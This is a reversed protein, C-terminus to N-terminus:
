TAPLEPTQGAEEPADMSLRLQREADVLDRKLAFMAARIKEELDPEGELSRLLQRNIQVVQRLARVIDGDSADTLEKLQQYDCGRSWANVVASLAFDLEPTRDRIGHSKEDERLARAIREAKRRLTNLKKDRLSVHWDKRRAECVLACILVNLQHEDAQHFLGQIMWETLVLEYGYMQTAFRGKVTLEREEIYGLERLLKLRRRVQDVMDQFVPTPREHRRRRHRRTRKKRGRPRYNAFSKRCAELLEDGLRAYLSLLTAYSLNFQSSIGEVPGHVLREVTELRTFPWEVNGYVFGVPDMGRRGARGAMQHYERSRLYSRRVGDFKHITDFVVTRAPMNIGLAFTETAFLLKILGSTFLREVIEKLTPLIGAHHYALGQLALRQLRATEPHEGLQYRSLLSDFLARIREREEDSLLSRHLNAEAYEECDRRNFVFYLCPLRDAKQIHDLLDSQWARKEEPDILDRARERHPKWKRWRAFEGRNLREELKRLKRLNGIGHEQIYFLHRLPVPRAESCVIQVKSGRVKSMWGAFSTLNPITASLCLFRIHRPAFIISEEWVTGREQDDMFHIEDFIVWKVDELRAPDEFITNRFIETTMIQVLAGSNLSVDGTLIGIDDGYREGFDRYKQNSLAKIPATYIARQRKQLCEELAYEAILTKGAGTPAAVIVSDARAIHSIAERQFPDLRYTRYTLEELDTTVALGAVGEGAGREAASRGM